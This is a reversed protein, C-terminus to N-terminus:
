SSELWSRLLSQLVKSLHRISELLGPYWGLSSYGAFNETMMCLSILVNRAFTLNLCYICIWNYLLYQFSFELDVLNDVGVIVCVIFSRVGAFDLIPFCMCIHVYMCVFACVYIYM